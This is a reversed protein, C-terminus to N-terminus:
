PQSESWVYKKGNWKMTGDSGETGFFLNVRGRRAKKIEWNKGKEGQEGLRVKQFILASSRGLFLVSSKQESQCGKGKGHIIFLALDEADVEKGSFYPYEIKVTKSIDEVTDSLGVIVAVDKM